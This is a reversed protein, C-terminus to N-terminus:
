SETSTLDPLPATVDQGTRASRILALLSPPVLPAHGALVDGLEGSDVTYIDAAEALQQAAANFGRATTVIVALDANHIPTYATASIPYVSEIGLLSDPDYCKAQFVGFLHPRTSREWGHVDVGKDGSGGTVTVDSWGDRILTRAILQEFDAGTSNPVYANDLHTDAEAQRQRRGAKVRLVLAVLALILAVFSPVFIAVFRHLGAAHLHAWHVLQTWAFWGVLAAGALLKSSPWRRAYVVRFSDRRRRGSIQITHQRGAM